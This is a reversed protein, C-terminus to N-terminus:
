KLAAKAKQVDVPSVEFVGVTAHGPASTAYALRVNIGAASFKDAAAEFAGVKDALPVVFAESEVFALKAKKLATRLKGADKAVLRIVGYESHAESHTAMVNIKARAVAKTVKSLQGPKNEVFVSFQRAM